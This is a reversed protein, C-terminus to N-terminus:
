AETQRSIIRALMSTIGEMEDIQPYLNRCDCGAGGNHVADYAESAIADARLMLNNAEEVLTPQSQGAAIIRTHLRRSRLAEMAFTSLSLHQM